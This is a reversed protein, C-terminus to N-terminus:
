KKKKLLQLLLDEMTPEQSADQQPESNTATTDYSEAPQQNKNKFVRKELYDSLRSTAQQTFIDQWMPTFKPPGDIRGSIAFPITMIGDTGLLTRGLQNQRLQTAIQNSLRIQMNYDITRDFGFSGRGALSFNNGTATLDPTWVHGDRIQMTTKLDNFRTENLKEQNIGLLGTLLSLKEMLDFTSIIMDKVESEGSGQLSQLLGDLSGPCRGALELRATMTGSIRNALDSNSSLIDNIQMDTVRMGWRFAFEPNLLDCQFAMSLTGQYANGAFRALSFVGDQLSLGGQLNRLRNRQYVLEGIRCEGTFSWKGLGQPQPSAAASSGSVSSPEVQLSKEAAPQAKLAVRKSSKRVAVPAGTTGERSAPREFSNLLDELDLFNSEISLEGPQDTKVSIKGDLRLDSRGIKLEMSQVRIMDKQMRLSGKGEVPRKLVGPWLLRFRDLEMTGEVQVDRLRDTNGTIDADITASGSAQQAFEQTGEAEAGQLWPRIDELDVWAHLAGQFDHTDLGYSAKQVSAKSSSATLTAKELVLKEDNLWGSANMRLKQGAPKRWKGPVRFEMADGRFDMEFTTKDQQHAVTLTLDWTGGWDTIEGSEMLLGVTKAEMGNALIEAELPLQKWDTKRWGQEELPGLWGSIKVPARVVQGMNARGKFRVKEGPIINKVSLQVDEWKLNIPRGNAQQAHLEVVGDKIQFSALHFNSTGNSTAPGEAAGAAAPKRPGELRRQTVSVPQSIERVEGTGLSLKGEVTRTVVIKPASLVIEKIEIQRHLLPGWRLRVEVGKSSFADQVRFDELRIALVPLLKWSIRGIHMEYGTKEQAMKEVTGKFRNINIVFPLILAAGLLLLCLVLLGTLFKKM